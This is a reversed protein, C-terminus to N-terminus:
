KNPPVSPCVTGTPFPTCTAPTTGDVLAAIWANAADVDRETTGRHTAQADYCFDVKTTSSTDAALDGNIKEISCQAFSPTITSDMGGFYIRIPPGQTDIPPRDAHFRPGWTTAPPTTCDDNFGCMELSQAATPDFYDSGYTGMQAMGAAVDDLCKTTVLTKAYAQKDAQLLVTGQGAGDLLEGHGYYYDLQYELLWAGGSSTSTSVGAAPSIAAGWALNSVWFPAFTTVGILTGQLGYQKAWADTSLAGHGGISHGAIVVKQPTAGAPLMKNMAFTADLTSKAIDESIAFAPADGYGFGAADPAIVTWGAGAMAFLPASITSTGSDNAYIDGRSPACIDAIGVSPHVYVILAGNARPHDPILVLASSHGEVPSGTAPKARETRFAIRFITAGSTLPAGNYSDARAAADLAAADLWRDRSCHFVDGRHTSDWAPLGSPLTYVDAMADTCPVALQVDPPAADPPTADPAGPSSSGCAAGVLFLWVLRRAM